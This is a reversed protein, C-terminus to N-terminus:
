SLHHLVTMDRRLGGGLTPYPKNFYEYDNKGVDGRARLRRPPLKASM